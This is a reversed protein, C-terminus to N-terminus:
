HPLRRLYYIPKNEVKVMAAIWKCSYCKCHKPKKTNNGKEVTKTINTFEHDTSNNNNFSTEDSNSNGSTCGATDDDYVMLITDIIEISISDRDESM